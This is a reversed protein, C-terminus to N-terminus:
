ITMVTYTMDLSENDANFSGTVTAGGLAQYSVTGKAFNAGAILTKDEPIGKLIGHASHPHVNKSSPSANDPMDEPSVSNAIGKGFGKVEKLQKAM